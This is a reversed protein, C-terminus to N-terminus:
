SREGETGATSLARDDGLWDALVEATNEGL